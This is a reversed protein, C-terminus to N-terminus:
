EYYDGRKKNLRVKILSTTFLDIYYDDLCNMKLIDNYIKSIKEYSNNNKDRNKMTKIIEYKEKKTINLDILSTNNM